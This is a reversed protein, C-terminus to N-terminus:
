GQYTIPKQKSVCQGALLRLPNADLKCVEVSNEVLLNVSETDPGIRKLEKFPRKAGDTPEYVNLWKVILM